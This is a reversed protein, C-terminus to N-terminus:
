FRSMKDFRVDVFPDLKTIATKLALRVSLNVMRIRTAEAWEKKTV